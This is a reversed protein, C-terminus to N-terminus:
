DGYSLTEFSAGTYNFVFYWGYPVEISDSLNYTTTVLSGVVTVNLNEVLKMNTLNPGEWAKLKGTTMSYVVLQSYNANQYIHTSSYITNSLMASQGLPYASYYEIAAAVALIAMFMTLMSYEIKRFPSQAQKFRYAFVFLIGVLVIIIEIM